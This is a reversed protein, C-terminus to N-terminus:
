GASHESEEDDEEVESEPEDTDYMEAMVVRMDLPSSRATREDDLSTVRFDQQTVEDTAYRRFVTHFPLRMSKPFHVEFVGKVGAKRAEEENISNTIEVCANFKVGSPMYTEYYGVGPTPTRVLNLIECEVAYDDLLSM